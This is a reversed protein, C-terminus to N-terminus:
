VQKVCCAWELFFPNGLAFSFSYTLNDTLFHMDSHYFLPWKDADINEEM